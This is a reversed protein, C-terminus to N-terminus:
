FFVGIKKGGVRNKKGGREGGGRCLADILLFLVGIKKGGVGNRGGGRELLWVGGSVGRGGEGGDEEM